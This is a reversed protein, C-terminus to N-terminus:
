PPTATHLIPKLLCCQFKSSLFGSSLFHPSSSHGSKTPSPYFLFCIEALTIKHCYSLLLISLMGRSRKEWEKKGFVRKGRERGTGRIRYGKKKQQQIKHLSKIKLFKNQITLLAWPVISLTCFTCLLIDERGADRARLQKNRRGQYLWGTSRRPEQTNNCLYEM